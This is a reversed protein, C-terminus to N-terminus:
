LILRVNFINGPVPSLVESIVKQTGDTSGTDLIYFRDIFPKVAKLTSSITHAEDKVIMVLALLPRGSPLVPFEFSKSITQTIRYLSSSDKGGCKFNSDGPCQINCVVSEQLLNGYLNRRKAILSKSFNERLCWCEASRSLRFYQFGRAACIAECQVPSNDKEM